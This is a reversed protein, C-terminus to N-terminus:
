NYITPFLLYAKGLIIYKQICIFNSRSDTNQLSRKKEKKRETHEWKLLIRTPIVSRKVDLLPKPHQGLSLLVTFQPRKSAGEPSSLSISAQSEQSMKIQPNHPKKLQPM